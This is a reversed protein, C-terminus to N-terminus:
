FGMIRKLLEDILGELQGNKKNRLGELYHDTETLVSKAKSNAESILKEIEKKKFAEFERHYQATAEAAKELADAQIKQAEIEAAKVEKQATGDCEIIKEIETKM